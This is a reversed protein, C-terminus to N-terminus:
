LLLLLLYTKTGLISKCNVVATNKPCPVKLSVNTAFITRDFISKLKVRVEIRRGMENLVPM